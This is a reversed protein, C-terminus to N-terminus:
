WAGALTITGSEISSPAGLWPTGPIPSGSPWPRVGSGERNIDDLKFEAELGPILSLTGPSVLEGPTTIEGRKLLHIPRPMGRTPHFNGADAFDSTGSYVMQSPPLEALQRNIEVLKKDM